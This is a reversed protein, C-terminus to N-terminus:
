PSAVQVRRGSPEVERRFGEWGHAPCFLSSVALFETDVEYSLGYLHGGRLQSIVYPIPTM